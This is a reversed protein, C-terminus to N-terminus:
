NTLKKMESSGSVGRSIRFESGEALGKSYSDMDKLKPKGAMRLSTKKMEGVAIGLEQKIFADILASKSEEIEFTPLNKRISAVWGMCFLDARKTRTSPKCNKHITKLYMRRAISLQRSCIDFSYSAVEVSSADGYFVVNKTAGGEIIVKVGFTSKIVNVLANVHEPMKKPIKNDNKFRGLESFSMDSSSINYKKMLSQAKKLASAAEHENGSQALAFCKKIKEIHKNNM